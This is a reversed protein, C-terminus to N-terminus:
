LGGEKLAEAELEIEINLIQSVEKFILLIEKECYNRTFANMRHSSDRFFYHLEIKNAIKL